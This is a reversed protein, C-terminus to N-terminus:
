AVMLTYESNYGSKVSNSNGLGFYFKGLVIIVDDKHRGKPRLLMIEFLARVHQWIILSLAWFMLDQISHIGHRLM